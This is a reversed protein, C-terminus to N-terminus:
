KLPAVIVNELELASGYYSTEHFYLRDFYPTVMQKRTNTSSKSLYFEALISLIDKTETRTGALSVQGDEHITIESRRVLDGVFDILQERSGRESNPYVLQSDTYGMDPFYPRYDTTTVTKLGELDSLSLRNLGDKEVQMLGSVPFKYSFLTSNPCCDQIDILAPKTLTQDIMVFQNNDFLGSKPKWSEATQPPEMNLPSSRIFDERLEYNPILRQSDQM